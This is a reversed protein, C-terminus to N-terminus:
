MYTCTSPNCVLLTDFFIQVHHINAIYMYATNLPLGIVYMHLM